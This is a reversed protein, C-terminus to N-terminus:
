SEMAPQLLPVESHLCRHSINFSDTHFINSHPNKGHRAAFGRLKVFHSKQFKVELLSFLLYTLLLYSIEFPHM